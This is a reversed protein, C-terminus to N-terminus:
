NGLQSALADSMVAGLANASPDLSLAQHFFGVGMLSPHNPIPLQWQAANGAGLLLGSIDPSVRVWCGPAGFPALDTLPDAMGTLMIALSQALNNVDITLSAGLQPLSGTAHPVGLTGACGPGYAGLGALGTLNQTGYYLVGSWLRMAIDTGAWPDAVTSGRSTGLTLTADVTGTTVTAIGTQYRPGVGIYRLKIGHVGPRLYIPQPFLVSASATSISPGGASTGTSNLVWESAAGTFGLYTLPKSYLEVTFGLNAVNPAVDLSTISLGAPNLVNLDFYVSAGSGLGNNPAVNHSVSQVPVIAKTKTSPASCLRTATLTVNVPNANPYVWAASQGTSDVVSDGDLDWAWSTAAPSSHDTFLVTYPGVVQYTFDAQLADTKIYGTRTITQSGHTADIATLSVDYTGCNAYTFSPHQLTSDVVNDGDFDWVWALIGAPDDTYTRDTFQVTLPSPGGTVDSTFSPHLGAAPAYQFECILAHNTGITGTVATMGSTAYVRSALATSTAGSVVDCGRVSGGGWTPGDVYVDFILDGASPDYVFSTSFPVDVHSPVVVGAGLTTGGAITLPGNHVTTLNAGLNNSFTASLALYDATCTAMDVRLASWTGGTWTSTAGSYPRFKMGSILIPYTISQGTFHSSDYVQQFRMSGTTRAWPYVNNSNGITSAYSAPVTLQLQALATTALLGLTFLSRTCHM